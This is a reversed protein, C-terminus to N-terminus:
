NHKTKILIVGGVANTGYYTAGDAMTLISISDVVSAPLLALDRFDSWRVGDVFVLPPDALVVSSSGRRQLQTPKGNKDAMRLNRGLTRLADWATASGSAAIQDATIVQSTTGREGASTERNAGSACGVSGVVITV